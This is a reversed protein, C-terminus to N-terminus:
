ADFRDLVRGAGRGDAVIDAGDFVQAGNVWVGELGVPDHILRSAGGPFDAVRRSRSIGVRQPDFLIFDAYAGAAIRGRDPIRYLDAPFSTLQRVAEVLEIAALERVWHALMYLGYGANCFYDLHAGAASQAIM